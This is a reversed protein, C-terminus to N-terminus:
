DFVGKFQIAELRVKFGLSLQSLKCLYLKFEHNERGEWTKVLGKGLSTIKTSLGAM